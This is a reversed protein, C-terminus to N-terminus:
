ISVSLPTSVSLPSPASVAVSVAISTQGSSLDPRAVVPTISSSASNVHGHDLKLENLIRTAERKGSLWAGHTYGPFVFTAEGAFRLRGVPAAIAEVDAPTAGVKMFAYSGRAFPDSRWRTIRHAVPAPLVCGFMTNLVPMLRAITEADTWQEAALAYDAALFCVLAPCGTMPMMNVFFNFEGARESVFGFEAADAPWYCADFQVIVQTTTLWRSRDLSFSHRLTRPNNSLKSSTNVRCRRM